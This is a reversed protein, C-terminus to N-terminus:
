ANMPKLRIQKPRPVNKRASSSAEPVGSARLEIPYGSFTQDPGDITLREAPVASLRVEPTVSEAGTHRNVLRARYFRVGLARWMRAIMVILEADIDPAQAIALRETEGLPSSTSSASPSVRLCGAITAIPALM